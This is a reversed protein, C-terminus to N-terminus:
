AHGAGVRRREAKERENQRAECLVYLLSAVDERLKTRRELESKMEPDIVGMVGVPEDVSITQSTRAWAPRSPTPRASDILTQLGAPLQNRLPFLPKLNLYTLYPSVEDGSVWTGYEFIVDPLLYESLALAIVSKESTMLSTGFSLVQLDPFPTAWLEDGVPEAQDGQITFDDIGFFSLVSLQPCYKRLTRTSQLLGIIPQTPALSADDVSEPSLPSEATHVSNIPLPYTNAGFVLTQMKSWEKVLVLFDDNSLAFPLPHSIELTTLHKLKRLPLLTDLTIRPRSGQRPHHRYPTTVCTLGLWRLQPCHIRLINLASRLTEPSELIQSTITLVQLRSSSQWSSIFQTTESFPANQFFETLSPYFTSESVIDTPHATPNFTLTDLPNGCSGASWKFKLHALHPLSGLVRCLHSTLWFRPLNLSKLDQLQAFWDSLEAEVRGIPHPDLSNGRRGAHIDLTTINQVFFCANRIFFTAHDLLDTDVRFALERIGSHLFIAGQSLDSFWRFSWLNPLVKHQIRTRAINDFVSSSPIVATSQVTLKKVRRSFKDFNAWDRPTPRRVFKKRNSGETIPNALPVLLNFLACLDDVEYWLIDFAIPSWSRCVLATHYNDRRDPLSFLISRLLEPTAVVRRHADAM